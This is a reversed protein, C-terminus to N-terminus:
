VGVWFVQPLLSFGHSAPQSEHNREYSLGGYKHSRDVFRSTVAVGAAAIGLKAADLPPYTIIAPCMQQQGNHFYALWMDGNDEGQGELVFIYDLHKQSFARMDDECDYWKVYDSSHGPNDLALEVATERRNSM